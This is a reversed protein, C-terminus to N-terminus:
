QDSKKSHIHAKSQFIDVLKELCDFSRITPRDFLDAEVVFLKDNRVAPLQTWRRWQAKLQDDSYGGSMSSIIVIEPQMALVEEWSYRPYLRDGAALNTGGARTVLRGIFSRPGASVISGADIQFFVRPRHASMRVRADVEQLKKHMMDVLGAAKTDAHVLTGLRTVADMIGELSTPNFAYVPIELEELRDVVAKPTGDQLALCIDPRMSVIREISPNTYSGVKPLQVAATPRKSYQTVAVIKKGQGLEFVMETLSPMLSVIRQPNDPVAVTRGTQDILLSANARAPFLAALTLFYIFFHTITNHLTNM